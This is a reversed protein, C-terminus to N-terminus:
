ALGDHARWFALTADPDPALEIVCREPLQAAAPVTEWRQHDLGWM